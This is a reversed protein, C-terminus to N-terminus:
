PEPHMSHSSFTACSPARSLQSLTMKSYSSKSKPVFARVHALFCKKHTKGWVAPCCSFNKNAFRRCCELDNGKRKKNETARACVVCIFIYMYVCMCTGCICSCAYTQSNTLTYRAGTHRHEPVTYNM